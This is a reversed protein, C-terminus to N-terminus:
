AEPSAQLIDQIQQRCMPCQANSRFVKQACCHCFSAHGCPHLRASAEHSLCIACEEAPGGPLYLYDRCAPARRTAPPSLRSAPILECTGGRPWTPDLLQVAKTCGYVDIVAWLRAAVAVGKLLLVDRAKQNRRYFLRGRRDVWFSLVTGEEGCEDPLVAAWTEGQLVLDPCVFPPLLAPEMKSPDTATFGVRLGGHWPAEKKLIKLTVREQLRVPRQTFVIGDHFTGAREAVSCSEDLLVKSGHSLPHFFLPQAADGASSAADHLQSVSCGM